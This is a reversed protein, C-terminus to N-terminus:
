NPFIVARCPDCSNNGAGSYFSSEQSMAYNSGLGAGGLHNSQYSLAQQHGMGYGSNASGLGYGSSASSLGYGSNASGLGYGSNASGYSSYGAGMQSNGWSNGLGYQSSHANHGMHGLSSYSYEENEAQSYASQYRYAM